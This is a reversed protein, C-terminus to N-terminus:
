REDTNEFSAKLFEKKFSLDIKLNYISIYYFINFLIYKIYNYNNYLINM